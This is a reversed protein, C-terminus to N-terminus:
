QRTQYALHGCSYPGLTLLTKNYDSFSSHRSQEILLVIIKLM